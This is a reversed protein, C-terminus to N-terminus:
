YKTLIEKSSLGNARISHNSDSIALALTISTIHDGDPDMRKIEKELEQISKDVSANKNKNKTTGFDLTIGVSKLVDDGNM